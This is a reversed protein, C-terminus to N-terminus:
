PTIVLVDDGAEKARPDDRPNHRRQEVDNRRVENGPTM